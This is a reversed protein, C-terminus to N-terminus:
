LRRLETSVSDQIARQAAIIPLITAIFASAVLLGIYTRPFVLMEPPPDFVGTLVKVLMQAIAIGLGIGLISGPVVIVLAESWLFAGLQKPNAGIASLIAFTRRREALGLALMLGTAAAVVIIAFTLELATLGHLDIATLSSGITRQTELITSVHAGPIGSTIRSAASAVSEIRGPAVHILVYEAGSRHTMRAIYTANAILFSDHPATPFERSIGLFTFPVTAYRLTKGDQLRLVLRDGTHLQYTSVTEESVLIGDPHAALMALTDRANGNGFFANSMPTVRGITAPDIAYIDQLDNGVYAFRHVMSQAEIVGPIARLLDIQRSPAFATQGAVTVDAGNTLAADVLSQANYTANFVATAIGFSFALLVLVLSRTLLKWQRSLSSAVVSGLPGAFPTSLRAVAGRGRVLVVRSLRMSLLAAGLWFLVPGLFAQYHVTSQPMGEPALVVQYGSAATQWYALAAIALIIIDLYIREWLPVGHRGVVARSARVTGSAAAVLAPGTIGGMALLLGAVCAAMLWQLDILTPHPHLAVFAVIGCMIGGIAVVLAEVSSLTILTATSAGRIRLLAQERTRRTQGSTTVALTLLMALIVGPLGLFLFLVRAYLADAQTGLLKAALNDGIIGSGAIRAEVNKARGDVVNYAALPDAPLDHSIRVHLQTSISDPRRVTQADFIGHWMSAPLIVINDPPAQPAAGSPLGVAQFFADANPMDIIGDIRVRVPPLAEREITIRDGVRAHLNAATQQALLVGQPKGILLRLERPFSRQYGEPIGVAKGPGTTQVGGGANLEFGPVAAYFVEQVATFPTASGLAKKVASIDAGRNILLQWDVSVNAIAQRTMLAASSATFTGVAALVVITLAVGAVAGILRGGLSTLLGRLWVLVIIRTSGAGRLAHVM